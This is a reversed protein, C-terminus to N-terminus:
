LWPQLLMFSGYDGCVPSRCKEFIILVFKEAYQFLPLFSQQVHVHVNETEKQLLGSDCGLYMQRLIVAPVSNQIHVSFCVSAFIEPFRYMGLAGIVDKFLLSQVFRVELYKCVPM